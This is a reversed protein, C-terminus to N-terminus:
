LAEKLKRLIYQYTFEYSAEQFPSHLKTKIIHSILITNM